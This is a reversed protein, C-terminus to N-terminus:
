LLGFIMEVVKKWWSSQVVFPRGLNIDETTGSKVSERNVAPVQLHVGQVACQDIIEQPVITNQKILEPAEVFQAIMGILVHWDIHCHSNSTLIILVIPIYLFWTGPNDSTFQFIAFGGGYVM